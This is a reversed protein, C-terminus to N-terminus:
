SRRTRVERVAASLADNLNTYEQRGPEVARRSGGTSVVADTRKADTRAAKTAAKAREARAKRGDLIEAADTLTIRRQQALQSAESLDLDEGYQETLTRVEAAIQGRVMEAQSQARWSKLEAIDRDRPDDSAVEQPGAGWANRLVELTGNPDEHLAAQLANAWAVAQRQESLEQTKQTYDKAKMYGSPLDKVLVEDDGIRVYRDALEDLDVYQRTPVETDEGEDSVGLQEGDFDLDTDAAPEVYIDDGFDLEDLTPM